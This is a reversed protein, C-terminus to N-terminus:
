KGSDEEIKKLLLEISEKLMDFTTKYIDIDGGYPDVIDGKLGVFEKLTYIKNKYQSFNELLVDRMYSTMTLILDNEELLDNTFQVAKRESIDVNFNSKILTATNKSTKSQPVVSLGASHAEVGDRHSLENFIAEAM